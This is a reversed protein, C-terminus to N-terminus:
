RIGFSYTFNGNGGHLSFGPRHGHHGRHLVQRSLIRGSKGDVVLRVPGRYGRARMVYDGRVLRVNRINRYGRQYLSRVVVRQPLIRRHGRWDKHSHGNKNGKYHVLDTAQGTVAQPASFAPAASAASFAGASLLAALAATIMTKKM